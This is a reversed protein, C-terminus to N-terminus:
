DAMWLCPGIDGLFCITFQRRAMADFVSLNVQRDEGSAHMQLHLPSGESRQVASSSTRPLPVTMPPVMPIADIAFLRQPTIPDDVRHSSFVGVWFSMRSPLVPFLAPM